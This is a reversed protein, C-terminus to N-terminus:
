GLNHLRFSLFASTQYLVYNQTLFVAEWQLKLKLIITKIWQASRFASYLNGSPVSILFFYTKDNRNEKFDIVLMSILQNKNCRGYLEDFILV